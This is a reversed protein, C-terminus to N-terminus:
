FLVAGHQQGGACDHEPWLCLVLVKVVQAGTTQIAKVLGAVATDGLPVEFLQTNSAMPAWDTPLSRQKDLEDELAEM